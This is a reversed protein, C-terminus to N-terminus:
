RSLREGRPTTVVTRWRVVLWVFGLLLTVLWPVVVPIHVQGYVVSLYVIRTGFITGLFFLGGVLQVLPLSWNILGVSVHTLFVALGIGVLLSGPTLGHIAEATFGALFGGTLVGGLSRGNLFVLFPFLLLFYAVGVGYGYALELLLLAAFGLVANM